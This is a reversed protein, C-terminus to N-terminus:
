GDEFELGAPRTRPVLFLQPDVPLSRLRKKRCVLNDSFEDVRQLPGYVRDPPQIPNDVL